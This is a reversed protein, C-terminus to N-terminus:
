SRRSRRSCSAMSPSARRVPRVDGVSTSCCGSSSKFQNLRIGGRVNALDVKYASFSFQLIDSTAVWNADYEAKPKLWLLKKARETRKANLYAQTISDFTASAELEKNFFVAMAKIWEARKLAGAEIASSRAFAARNAVSPM